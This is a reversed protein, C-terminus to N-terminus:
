VTKGDPANSGNRQGVLVEVMREGYKQVRADGVGIIKELDAKSAAKQQVMQALKVFWARGEAPEKM